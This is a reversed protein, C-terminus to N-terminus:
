FAVGDFNESAFEPMVNEGTSILSDASLTWRWDNASFENKEIFSEDNLTIIYNRDDFTKTKDRKYFKIDKIGVYYGVQANRSSEVIKYAHRCKKMFWMDPWNKEEEIPIRDSKSSVNVLTKPLIYNETKWSNTDLSQLLTEFKSNSVRNTVTQLLSNHYLNDIANPYFSVDSIQSGRNTEQEPNKWVQYEDLVTSKVNEKIFDVVSKSIESTLKDSEPTVIGTNIFTTKVESYQNSDTTPTNVVSIFDKALEEVWTPFLRYQIKEQTTPFNYPTIALKSFEIKIYKAYITNPLQYSEKSL